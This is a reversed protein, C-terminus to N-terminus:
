RDISVGLMQAFSEQVLLAHMIGLVAPNSVLLPSKPKRLLGCIGLAQFELERPVKGVETKVKGWEEPTIFDLGMRALRGNLFDLQTLEGKPGLSKEIYEQNHQNLRAEAEKVEKGSLPSEDRDFEYECMAVASSM